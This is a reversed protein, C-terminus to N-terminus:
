LRRVDVDLQFGHTQADLTTWIQHPAARSSFRGAAMCQRHWDGVSNGRYHNGVDFVQSGLEWTLSAWEITQHRRAAALLLTLPFVGGVWAAAAMLHLVDVILHLNGMEGLTAGAHGAWAIAAMLGLASCPALWRLPVVRDFALCAALIIALAFRIESVLGFQTESLVTSLVKWTMAEGFPLGSMSVAELQFWIVGSMAAIALSIWATQLIQSRVVSATAKASIFAPEAVVTRFVLTGTVLATAAFHIGRIVVLSLQLDSM